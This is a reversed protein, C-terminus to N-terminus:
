EVLTSVALAAAFATALAQTATFMEVACVSAYLTNSSSKSSHRSLYVFSVFCITSALISAWVGKVSGVSSVSSSSPAFNRFLKSITSASISFYLSLTSEIFAARAERSFVSSLPLAFFFFLALVVDDLVGFFFLFYM